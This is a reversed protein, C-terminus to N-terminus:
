GKPAPLPLPLKLLDLLEEVIWPCEAIEENKLTGKKIVTIKM